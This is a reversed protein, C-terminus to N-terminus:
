FDLTKLSDEVPKLHCTDNLKYIIFSDKTYDFVNIACTDQKVCWFHANGLSLVACLLVKNVVRHSIIALTQNGHKSLLKNLAQTSRDRVDALSEGGPMTLKHPEEHWKKYLDPYHKEVERHPMGQWDGYDFDVFGDDVQPELNLYGSIVKATELARSLPSSYIAAMNIGRLAKAVARAQEKGTQNLQIDLRGRFVQRKNWDTEGHRM